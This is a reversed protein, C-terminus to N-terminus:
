SHVTTQAYFVEIVCWVKSKLYDSENGDEDDDLVVSAQKRKPQQSAMAQEETIVDVPLLTTRESILKNATEHQQKSRFLRSLITKKPTLNMGHLSTRSGSRSTSGYDARVFVAAEVIPANDQPVEEDQAFDGAEPTGDPYSSGNTAPTAQRRRLKEAEGRKHAL